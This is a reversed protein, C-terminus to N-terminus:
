LNTSLLTEVLKVGDDTLQYEIRDFPKWNGIISSNFDRANSKSSVLKYFLLERLLRMEGPKLTDNFKYGDHYLSELFIRMESQLQSRLYKIAPETLSSLENQM